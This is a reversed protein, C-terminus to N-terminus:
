FVRYTVVTPADTNPGCSNRGLDSAAARPFTLSLPHPEATNVFSCCFGGPEEKVHSTLVNAKLM